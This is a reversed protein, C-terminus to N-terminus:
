NDNTAYPKAPAMLLEDPRPPNPLLTNIPTVVGTTGDITCVHWWWNDGVGTTDTPVSFTQVSGDPKLLSVSASSTALTGSGSYHYVAYTYTGAHSQYITVHEPGYSTVDDVDLDAYPPETQSGRRYYAIHSRMSDLAGGDGFLPTWLHSDLDSPDEGWVLTFQAWFNRNAITASNIHFLPLRGNSYTVRCYGLSDGEYLHFMLGVLSSFTAYDGIQAPIFVATRVPAGVATAVGQSLHVFFGQSYTAATTDVVEFIDTLEGVACDEVTRDSSLVADLSAGDVAVGHAALQVNYMVFTAAVAVGATNEPSSIRGPVDSKALTTLGTVTMSPYHANTADRAILLINNQTLYGTVGINALATNSSDQVTATVSYSGVNFTTQGQTNTTGSGTAIENNPNDKDDDGGCGTVMIMSLMVISLIKLYKM